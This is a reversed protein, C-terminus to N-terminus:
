RFHSLSCGYQAKFCASASRAPPCVLDTLLLTAAISLLSNSCHSTELALDCYDGARRRAIDARRGGHAEGLFAGGDHCCVEVLSGGSRDADSRSAM